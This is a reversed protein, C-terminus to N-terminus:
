LRIYISVLLEEAEEQEEEEQCTHEFESEFHGVDM